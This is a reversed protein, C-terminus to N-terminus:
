KYVETRNKTEYIDAMALEQWNGTAAPTSGAVVLPDVYSYFEATEEQTGDANLSVTHGTM